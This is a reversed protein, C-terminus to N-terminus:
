VSDLIKGLLVRASEAVEEPARFLATVTAGDLVLMLEQSVGEPRGLGADRALGEFYSRVAEKQRWTVEKVDAAVRGVEVVANLFSCGRYADGQLWELCMELARVLRARPDDSHAEASRLGELRKELRQELVARSLDTKSGFNYCLTGRSVGAHEFIEDIGM